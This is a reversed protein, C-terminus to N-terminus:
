TTVNPRKDVTYKPLLTISQNTEQDNTRRLDSATAMAVDMNRYPNKWGTRMWYSSPFFDDMVSVMMERSNRSLSCALYANTLGRRM